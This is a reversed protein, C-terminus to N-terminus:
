QSFLSPLGGVRAYALGLLALLGPWLHFLALNANQDLKSLNIATVVGDHKKFHKLSSLSPIWGMATRILIGGTLLELLIYLTGLLAGAAFAIAARRLSTEDIAAAGQM